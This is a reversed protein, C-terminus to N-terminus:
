SPDSRHVTAGGLATRARPSGTTRKVGPSSRSRESRSISSERSVPSERERSWPISGAPPKFTRRGYIRQIEEVDFSEGPRDWNVGRARIRDIRISRAAITLVGGVEFRAGRAVALRMSRTTRGEIISVALEPGRDREAWITAIQESRAEPVRRGDPREIARVVLGPESAVVGTGVQVRHRAPLEITKRHSRPGESVVLAIPRMAAPPETSFPHVTECARCRAVGTLSRVKPTAAGVPPRALHLIRHPTRRGCVDCVLEAAHLAPPGARVVPTAESAPEADDGSM